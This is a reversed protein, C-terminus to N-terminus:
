FWIAEHKAGEHKALAEDAHNASYGLRTLQSSCKRLAALLEDREAAVMLAFKALQALNSVGSGNPPWGYMLVGAEEAMRELGVTLNTRDEETNSRKETPEMNLLNM